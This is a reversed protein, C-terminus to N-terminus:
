NFKNLFENNIKNVNSNKFVVICFEGRVKLGPFNFFVMRIRMLIANIQIPIESISLFRQAAIRIMKKNEILKIMKKM